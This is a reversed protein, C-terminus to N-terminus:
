TSHQPILYLESTRWWLQLDAWVCYLRSCFFFFGCVAAKFKSHVNNCPVTQCKLDTLKLRMGGEPQDLWARLSIHHLVFQTCTSWSELMSYLRWVSECVKVCKVYKLMMWLSFFHQYLFLLRHNNPVIHTLHCGCKAGEYLGLSIICWSYPQSPADSWFAHMVISSYCAKISSEGFTITGCLVPAQQFM